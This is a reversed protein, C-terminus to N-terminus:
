TIGMKNKNYLNNCLLDFICLVFVILKRMSSTHPATCPYTCKVWKGSIIRRMRRKQWRPCYYDFTRLRSFCCNWCAPRSTFWRHATIRIRSYWELVFMFGHQSICESESTVEVLELFNYPVQSSDTCFQNDSVASYKDYIWLVKCEIMFSFYDQWYCVM